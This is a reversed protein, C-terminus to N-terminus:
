KSTLDTVGEWPGTPPDKALTAARAAMSEAAKDGAQALAAFRSAAQEFDGARYSALAEAYAATDIEPGSATEGRRALPEFIAM